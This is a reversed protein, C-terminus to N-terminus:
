HLMGSNVEIYIFRKYTGMQFITHTIAEYDPAIGLTHLWPPRAVM